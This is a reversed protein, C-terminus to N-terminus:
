EQLGVVGFQFLLCLADTEVAFVPWVSLLHWAARTSSHTDAQVCGEELSLGLM